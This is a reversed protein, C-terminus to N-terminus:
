RQRPISMGDHPVSMLPGGSIQKEVDRPMFKEQIGDGLVLVRSDDFWQPEQPKEDKLERPVIGVTNCGTLWRTYGLAIGSFGTIIDKVEKGIVEPGM